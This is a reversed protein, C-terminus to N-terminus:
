GHLFRKIEDIARVEKYVIDYEDRDLEARTRGGYGDVAFVPDSGYAYSADGRPNQVIEGKLEGYIITLEKGDYYGFYARATARRSTLGDAIRCLNEIGNKADVFFKIFPGPLGDLEDLWLSYDDVFVPRRVIEYAQRVKHEIVIEPQKSQIEALDLAKYDIEMELLNKMHYAKHQNGTIFLPNQKM